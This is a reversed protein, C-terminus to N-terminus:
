RWDAPIGYFQAANDGFFRAEGEAGSQQVFEEVLKFVREYCGALLCVPWDSGFFVRKMGYGANVEKTPGRRETM